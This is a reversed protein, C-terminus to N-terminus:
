GELGYRLVEWDGSECVEIGYASIGEMWIEKPRGRRKREMSGEMWGSLM